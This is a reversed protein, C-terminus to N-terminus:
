LEQVFKGITWNSPDLAMDRRWNSAEHESSFAPGTVGGISLPIYAVKPEPKVRYLKESATFDPNSRDYWAGGPTSRFQITKGEAFAQLVPLLAKVKERNM